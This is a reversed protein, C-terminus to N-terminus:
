KTVSVIRIAARWDVVDSAGGSDQVEIALADNTDDASVRADFSTDDADDITTVTPSAPKLTTTGGDNEVGGEIRFYFSKAMGATGGVILIDYVWATDSPILLQASSGDLFLEYWSADSHTVTRYVEAAAGLKAWTPTIATLQWYSYDNTQLALKGVDAAVFGTAALRAALTAYTWNHVPHRAGLGSESHKAM